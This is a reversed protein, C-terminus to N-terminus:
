KMAARERQDNINCVDTRKTASPWSSIIRKENIINNENKKENESSIVTKAVCCQLWIRIEKRRLNGCQNRWVNKM